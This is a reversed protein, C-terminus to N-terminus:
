PSWCYDHRCRPLGSPVPHLLPLTRQPVGVTTMVVALYDLRMELLLRTGVNKHPHQGKKPKKRFRLEELRTMGKASAKLKMQQECVAEKQQIRKKAKELILEADLQLQQSLAADWIGVVLRFLEM